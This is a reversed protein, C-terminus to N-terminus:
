ISKKYWSIFSKAGGRYTRGTKMDRWRGTSPYFDVTPHNPERFIVCEESVVRFVLGSKRLEEMHQVKWERHREQKAENIRRWMETDENEEYKKM